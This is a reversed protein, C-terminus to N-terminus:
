RFKKCIDVLSTCSYNYYVSQLSNKMLIKSKSKFKLKVIILFKLFINVTLILFWELNRIWGETFSITLIKHRCYKLCIYM